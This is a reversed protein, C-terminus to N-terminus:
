VLGVAAERSGLEVLDQGKEEVFVNLSVISRVDV